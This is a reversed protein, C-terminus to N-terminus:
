FESVGAMARVTDVVGATVKPERQQEHVIFGAVGSQVDDDRVYGFGARHEEVRISQLPRVAAWSRGQSRMPPQNIRMTATLWFSLGIFGHCSHNIATSIDAEPVLRVLERVPSFTRLHGLASM